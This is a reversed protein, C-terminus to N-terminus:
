WAPNGCQGNCEYPKTNLHMRVHPLARDLRNHAVGCPRGQVAVKCIYFQPQSGDLWEHLVSRGRADTPELGGSTVWPQSSFVLWDHEAQSM